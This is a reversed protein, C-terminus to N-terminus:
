GPCVEFRLPDIGSRFHNEIEGLAEGLMFLM